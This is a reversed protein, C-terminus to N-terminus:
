GISSKIVKSNVMRNLSVIYYARCDDAVDTSALLVAAQCSRVNVFLNTKEERVEGNGSVLSDSCQCVVIALQYRHRDKERETERSLLLLFPKKELRSKCADFFYTTSLKILECILHYLSLLALSPGSPISVQFRYGRM